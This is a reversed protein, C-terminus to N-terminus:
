SEANEALNWILIEVGVRCDRSSRQLNRVQEVM